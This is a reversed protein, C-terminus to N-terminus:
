TAALAAARIGMESLNNPWSNGVILATAAEAIAPATMIGYGGQGALWFFGDKGRDFGVVPTRDAVFSTLGAWRHEIQGVPVKIANEVRSVTLAIDLEEPQADCPESPTEDAPSTLVKELEPKFYFEEEVDMVMPSDHSVLARRAGFLIGTRRTPLLGVSNAGALADM